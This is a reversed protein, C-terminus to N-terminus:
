RSPTRRLSRRQRGLGQARRPFGGHRPGQAEGGLAPRPRRPLGQQQALPKQAGRLNQRARRPGPGLRLRLGFLLALVVGRGLQLRAQVPDDVGGEVLILRHRLGYPQLIHAPQVQAGEGQGAPAPPAGGFGLLGPDPGMVPRQADGPDPQHLQAIQAEGVPAPLRALDRAFEGIKVTREGLRRLLRLLRM